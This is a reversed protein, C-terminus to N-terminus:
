RKTAIDDFFAFADNLSFQVATLHEIDDYVKYEVRKVGSESLIKQLNNSGRLSFDLTGTGIFFPLNKLEDSMKPAGGASILVVGAFTKPRQVALNLSQVSGMSHGTLFIKTRDIKYLKAVSEIFEDLKEANFGFNRPAVLFWGRKECLNVIKGNGYSDFFLNESGGAGHLALVIPLERKGDYSKPILIRSTQNGNKLPFTLMLQNASFAKRGIKAFTEAQFLLLNAQYDTELTKGNALQTLLKLHERATETQWDNTQTEALKTELNKLREALKNSVSIMQQNKALVEKGVVIETQLFYDGAKVNALSIKNTVPLEKVPFEAINKITKEASPILIFRIISDNPISSSVKYFNSLSINLTPNAEDLWRFDPLISLSEAWIKNDTPSQGLSLRANDLDRAAERLNFSFFKQVAKIAEGMAKKRIEPTTPKELEVELARTRKGLEYRENQAFVSFTFLLLFIIANIKM